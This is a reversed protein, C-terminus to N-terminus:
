RIAGGLWITRAFSQCIQSLANNPHPRDIAAVAARTRERVQSETLSQTPGREAKEVVEAPSARARRIPLIPTSAHVQTKAQANALIAGSSASKLNGMTVKAKAPAVKRLQALTLCTTKSHRRDTRQTREAACGITCSGGHAMTIEKQITPRVTTGFYCNRLFIMTKHLHVDFQLVFLNMLDDDSPRRSMLALMEDWRYIFQQIDGSQLTVKHLSAIDTM